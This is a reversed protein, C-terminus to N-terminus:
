AWFSLSMQIIKDVEPYSQGLEWKSVSQRSVSLKEALQEQSFGNKLRHKQINAGLEM